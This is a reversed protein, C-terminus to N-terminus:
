VESQSSPTTSWCGSSGRTHCSRSAIGAEVGGGILGKALQRVREHFEGATVDVFHDDDRYAAVPWGPDRVARDIMPQLLHATNSIPEMAPGNAERMTRMEETTGATSASDWEFRTRRRVRALRSLAQKTAVGTRQTRLRRLIPRRSIGRPARVTNASQLLFLTRLGAMLALWRTQSQRSPKATCFMELAAMARMLGTTDEPWDAIVIAEQREFETYEEAIAALLLRRVEDVQVDSLHRHRVGRLEFRARVTIGKKRRDRADHAQPRRQRKECLAVSEIM